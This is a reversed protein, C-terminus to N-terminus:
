KTGRDPGRPAPTALVRRQEADLREIGAVALGLLADLQARDFTSHEGTGQVEV